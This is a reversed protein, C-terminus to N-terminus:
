RERVTEEDTGKEKVCSMSSHAYNESWNNEDSESIKRFEYFSFGQQQIEM